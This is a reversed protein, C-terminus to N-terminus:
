IKEKIEWEKRKLLAPTIILKSNEKLSKHIKKEASGEDNNIDYIKRKSAGVVYDVKKKTVVKMNSPTEEVNSLRSNKIEKQYKMSAAKNLIPSSRIGNSL